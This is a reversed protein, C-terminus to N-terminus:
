IALGETKAHQEMLREVAQMPQTRGKIVSDVLEHIPARIERKHLLRAVSESTSVGEAVQGLEDLVERLTRGKGLGWGVRYNRSLKSSATAFLDGVGAIGYFTEKQGGLAHGIRMMEGLGRALLAGKTNDGFGLGDSMGAAIALVNKLAGAVEIGVVDTGVYIRYTRCVFAMAVREAVAQDEFAVLAATPIGRALEVALNPGSIVGIVAGPLAERVVDSLIQGTGHELGKSAIIVNPTEGKVASIATRVANSPVAVVWLDADPPSEDLLGFHVDPPLIFGPLYRLNERRDKLQQVEEPDRGLLWVDLGNRALILALATGWSGNGLVVVRM